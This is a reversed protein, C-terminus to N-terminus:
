QNIIRDICKSIPSDAPYMRRGHSEMWLLASKLGVQYKCKGVPLRRQEKVHQGNRWASVEVDRMVPAIVEIEGDAMAEEVQKVIIGSYCFSLGTICNKGVYQPQRYLAQIMARKTPWNGHRIASVSDDLEDYDITDDENPAAQSPQAVPAPEEKRQALLEMQENIGELAEAIRRLTSITTEMFKQELQTM